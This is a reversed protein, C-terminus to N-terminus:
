FHRGQSEQRFNIKTMRGRLVRNTEQYKHQNSITCEKVQKNVMKGSSYLSLSPLTVTIKNLEATARQLDEALIQYTLVHLSTDESNMCAGVEGKWAGGQTSGAKWPSEDEREWVLKM